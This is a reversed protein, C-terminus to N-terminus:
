CHCNLLFRCWSYCSVTKINKDFHVRVTCIFRRMWKINYHFLFTNQRWLMQGIKIYESIINIESNCKTQKFVCDLKDNTSEMDNQSTIKEHKIGVNMLCYVRFTRDIFIMHSWPQLLKLVIALFSCSLLAFPTTLLNPKKKLLMSFVNLLFLWYYSMILAPIKLKLWFFFVYKLTCSFAYLINSTKLSTIM